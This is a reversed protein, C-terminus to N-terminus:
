QRRSFDDRGGTTEQKVNGFPATVSAKVHIPPVVRVIRSRVERTLVGSEGPAM